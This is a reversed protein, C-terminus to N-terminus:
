KNEDTIYDYVMKSVVQMHYDAVNSPAAIIMCILYPRRPPYIIGCDSQVESSFVGIKHAVKVNDPLSAAIRNFDPAESLQQLIDESSDASLYCSLYLCRLMSSYDRASVRSQGDITYPFDIDLQNLITENTPILDGLTGRITKIATDDSDVLAYRIAQRITIKTGAGKKWLDGFRNDVWEEKIVVQRDLDIKGEEAAKYLSIITPLKLLSAGALQVDENSRISTGTPLYEFFFSHELKTNELYYKIAKRLPIYNVIIDNPSEVSLRKSLLPHKAMWKKSSPTETATAMSYSLIAILSVLIVIIADAILRHRRWFLIEPRLLKLKDM